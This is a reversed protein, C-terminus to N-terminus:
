EGMSIDVDGEDGEGEQPVDDDFRTNIVTFPDSWLYPPPNEDKAASTSAAGGPAQPTRYYLMQRNPFDMQQNADPKSGPAMSGSAVQQGPTSLHTTVYADPKDSLSEEWTYSLLEAPNFPAQSFVVDMFELLPTDNADQTAVPHAVGATTQTQEPVFGGHPA